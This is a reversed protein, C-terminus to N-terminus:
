TFTWGVGTLQAIGLVIWSLVAAFTLFTLVGVWIAAAKYFAGVLANSYRFALLSAAVFSVSLVGLAWAIWTRDQTGASFTWTKYLLLHILLLLSQFVAIFVLFRRRM